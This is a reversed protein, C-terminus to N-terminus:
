NASRLGRIPDRREANQRWDEEIAAAIARWEAAIPKVNDTCGAALAAEFATAVQMHEAALKARRNWVDDPLSAVKTRALKAAAEWVGARTFLEVFIGDM